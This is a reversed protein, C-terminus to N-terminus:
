FNRKIINPNKDLATIIYARNVNKTWEGVKEIDVPYLSVRRYKQHAFISYDTVLFSNALMDEYVLINTIESPLLETQLTWENVMQDQVQKTEYDQTLFNDTEKKTDPTNLRGRMRYSRYFGAEGDSSLSTYDFDSRLINGTQRTELRFTKDAARESYELLNFCRSLETTVNGILDLTTEITYSGPGNLNIVKEWDVIFMVYLPNVDFTDVFEGYTDDTITAISVANKLLKITITDSPLSKQFLFTSKDNKFFADDTTSGFVKETYLCGLDCPLIDPDVVVAVPDMILTTSTSQKTGLAPILAAPASNTFTKFVVNM